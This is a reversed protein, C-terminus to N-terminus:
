IRPARPPILKGLEELENMNAGEVPGSGASGAPAEQEVADEGSGESGENGEGMESMRARESRLSHIGGKAIALLSEYMKDIAGLFGEITERNEAMEQANIAEQIKEEFDTLDQILKFISGLSGGKKKKDAATLILENFRANM